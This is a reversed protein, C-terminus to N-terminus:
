FTPPTNIWLVVTRGPGPNTWSHLITSKFYMSDGARLEYRERGDLTISFQGVLVHIFEEGEHAYPGQSASNPDLTWRQCDMMLAGEALQEVQIGPGLPPLLRYEGARIVRDDRTVNRATLAAVTTGYCQTLKKLTAVTPQSVGREISSVFSPALGTRRRVERLTFGQRRRLSLLRQGLSRAGVDNHAAAGAEPGILTQIAALNFGRVERLRRIDRIRMLDGLGYRRHGRATKNPSLLGHREWLRLTSPSVGSAKAVTSISNSTARHGIM